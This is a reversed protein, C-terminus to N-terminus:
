KKERPPKKQRNGTLDNDAEELEAEMQACLWELLRTGRARIEDAIQKKRQPESTAFECSKNAAEIVADPDSEPALGTEEEFVFNSTEGRWPGDLQLASETAVLEYATNPDAELADAVTRARETQKLYLLYFGQYFLRPASGRIARGPLDSVVLLTSSTQAGKLTQKPRFSKCRVPDGPVFYTDLPGECKAIVVREAQKAYKIFNM